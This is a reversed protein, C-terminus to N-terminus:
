RRDVKEQVRTFHISLKLLFLYFGYNGLSFARVKPLSTRSVSESSVSCVQDFFVICDSDLDGGKPLFFIQNVRQKKIDSIHNESHKGNAALMKEYEPLSVIPAYVIRGKFPRENEPNIDCTNSLILCTRPEMRPDPLSVVVLGRIGDGQYIVNDVMSTYMRSDLNEPFLSLEAYLADQSGEALYKPMYLKISDDINM